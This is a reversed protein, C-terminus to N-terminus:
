RKAAKKIDRMILAPPLKIAMPATNTPIHKNVVMIAIISPTIIFYLPHHAIHGM